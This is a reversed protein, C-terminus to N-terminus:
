EERGGGTLEYLRCALEEIKGRNEVGDVLLNPIGAIGNHAGSLAGVVAGTTDTDGGATIISSLAEQYDEPTRLFTYFASGITEPASGGTGLQRLAEEPPTGADLHRAAQELRRAVESRGIYGASQAIFKGRDLGDSLIRAIGYAVAQAGAIAEPNNHTIASVQEVHKKLRGPSRYDFMAIPAIRAAAANGTAWMGKEGATKWSEGAKLREVAWKMTTGIGRLDNSEYWAVFRQGIDQPDVDRRDVISEAISLAMITDDTYQGPGLNLTEGYMYFTVRGHKDRIDDASRFEHPMGLADGIALGMLCGIFTDRSAAM